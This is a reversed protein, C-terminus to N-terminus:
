SQQWPWRFRGHGLHREGLYWHSHPKRRYTLGFRAQVVQLIHAVAEAPSDTLYLRDLDQADMTGEAVLTDRMFSVIPGWFDTGILVIPFDHIKGTQMLTATEFVEDLTGLGGPCVVFAYSYKVLMLKRVFFYHFRLCYDLYPNPVENPLEITIGISRGGAERAGRNAAEMVGPGGGTMVTFGANVLERGVERGVAYYRHGDDFRSSGFVTVCPGVFHLGRFGNVVERFIRIARWLETLRGQPGALFRREETNRGNGPWFKVDM